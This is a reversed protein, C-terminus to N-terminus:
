VARGDTAKTNREIPLFLQQFPTSRTQTNQLSYIYNTILIRYVSYKKAPIRYVTYKMTLIKGLTYKKQAYETFQLRYKM